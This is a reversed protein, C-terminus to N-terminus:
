IEIIQTAVKETFYKDHEIFIMTPSYKIIAEQIKQRTPIDLYNLPEDWMLLMVPNIISKCIEIKKREGESFNELPKEWIDGRVNLCALIERFKNEEFYKEVHNKLLGTNWEPIQKALSFIIFDPFIIKGEYTIQNLLAKFISTKGSGNKGTIAVRDGKNLTMSFNKLIVNADYKITLDKIDILTSPTKPHNFIKLDYDKELNKLLSSKEEINKDIRKEFNIAQKMLRASQAGIAGKDTHAAKESEKSDSWKRSRRSAENLKKINSKIKENRKKEFNLELTMNEEWQSYTSQNIRIDSKNISIIHDVCSDLFFRDHSVLIFGTKKNLYDSLIERGKIDLHNTPEDILPFINQKLFLLIIQIKTKEGGSLTKLDRTLISNELKMDYLEKEILSDIIYGNHNTFLEQIEGYKELNEKTPNKTLKEMEKEWFDFPATNNKLFKYVTDFNEDAQYPFLFCEKSHHINGIQPFLKKQLLNLMTTKGRGNRGILGTKWNCDITLNLNEFIVKYPSTYYFTVNEFIFNKM